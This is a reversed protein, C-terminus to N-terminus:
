AAVWCESKWPQRHQPFGPRECRKDGSSMTTSTQRAKEPFALRCLAFHCTLHLSLLMAHYVIQSCSVPEVPLAGAQASSGRKSVYQADLSAKSGRSVQVGVVGLIKKRHGSSSSLDHDEGNNSLTDTLASRHFKSAHWRGAVSESAGLLSQRHVLANLLVCSCALAAIIAVAALYEKQRM